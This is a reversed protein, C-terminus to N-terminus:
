PSTITGAPAERRPDALSSGRWWPTTTKEDSSGVPPTAPSARASAALALLALAFMRALRAIGCLRSTMMAALPRAPIHARPFPM